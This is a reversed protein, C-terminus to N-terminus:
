TRRNGVPQGGTASLEEIAASRQLEFEVPPTKFAKCTVGNGRREVRRAYADKRTRELVVPRATEQADISAAGITQAVHVACGTDGQDVVLRSQSSVQAM